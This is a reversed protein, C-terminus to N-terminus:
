RCWQLLVAVHFILLGISGRLSDLLTDLVAAFLLVATLAVNSRGRSSPCMSAITWVKEYRFWILMVIRLSHFCVVKAVLVCSKVARRWMARWIVDPVEDMVRRVNRVDWLMMGRGDGHEGSGGADTDEPMAPIPYELSHTKQESTPTIQGNGDVDGKERVYVDSNISPDSIRRTVLSSSAV